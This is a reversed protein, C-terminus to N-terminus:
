INYLLKIGDTTLDEKATDKVLDLITKRSEMITLIEAKLEALMIIINMLSITMLQDMPLEQNGEMIIITIAMDEGITTNKTMDAMPHIKLPGTMQKERGETDQRLIPDTKMKPSEVSALTVLVM